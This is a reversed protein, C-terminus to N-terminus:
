AAKYSVKGSYMTYVKEGNINRYGKVKYFYTKGTKLSKTTVKVSTKADKTTFVLTYKGAKTDAKYVKYGDVKFNAAKKWTLNVYGKQAIAKIGTLKTAKVGAIVKDNAAKIAEETVKNYAKTTLANSYIYNSIFGYEDRINAKHTLTNAFLAINKHQFAVPANNYENFQKKLDKNFLGICGQYPTKGANQMIVKAKKPLKTFYGTGYEYSITDNEKIYTVNVLTEKPYKVEVLADTGYTCSAFDVGKVLKNNLVSPIAEAGYAIFPKGAKIAKIAAEDKVSLESAGVIIDAEKVDKTMKFGMINMAFRDYSINWAEWDVNRTDFYGGEIAEKEGTLYVKTDKLVTAIVTNAKIGTASVIYNDKVETKFVDYSTVFHGKYEGETVLAVEKGMSLLHNVAQVAETSDNEIIVDENEIGDFQAKLGGIFKIAEDYSITSDCVKMIEKYAAPEACIARDYGRANPRSAFSESYLGKWVSIFSGNSLQSNVLSRKAQYCTIVLTGQPYEKDQYKFSSKAVNVKVGNRTLYRLEDAAAQINNQNAKDMPIIYCEPYYNGNQDKGDYVPRMLKDQKGARNYQDVYYPAVLENSNTNNVGRAFWKAQTTLLNRKNRQVYLGETFLAGPIVKSANEENYVPQEWTIGCTGTLVPAQSGYATTMDDWPETWEVGSPSSASKALYDRAPMEFSQYRESNAIAGNGLAEGLEIFQRQILDYEFDPLHPPTCPEILTGEVRGHLEFLVMADWMNVISQLNADENTVQNAEDRNPDIGTSTERTSHEYGEENMTPVVVFMVDKLLDSVKIAKEEINYIKNFDKIPASVKYEAGTEDEADEGRIYGIYSAYDKIQEPIANNRKEMEAKLVKKGAETLGQIENIKVTDQTLLQRLFNMPGIVGTNENTHCNTIIIPVRLGDYKGTELEKLVKDPDNEVKEKYALWTDISNQSDSVVLYPMDYGSVTTHGMSKKVVYSGNTTKMKALEEIDDYLEYVNRYSDYPVIKTDVVESTKGNVSATFDFYGCADFYVGGEDHPASYDAGQKETRDEGYNNWYYCNSQLTIVLNTGEAKMEKVEFQKHKNDNCLWTQLEGGEKQYPFLKKDFYVRTANRTLNFKVTKEEVAKKLEEATIDKMKFTVTDKDDNSQEIVLSVPQAPHLGALSKGPLTTNDATTKVSAFVSTPMMMTLILILGMIKVSLKNMKRAM